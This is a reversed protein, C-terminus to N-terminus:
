IAESTLHNDLMVQRLEEGTLDRRYIEQWAFIATSITPYENGMYHYRDSFDAVTNIGHSTEDSILNIIEGMVTFTAYDKYVLM